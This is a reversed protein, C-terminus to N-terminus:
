SHKSTGKLAEADFQQFRDTQFFALTAQICQLAPRRVLGQMLRIKWAPIEDRVFLTLSGRRLSYVRYGFKRGIWSM